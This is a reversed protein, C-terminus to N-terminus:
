PRSEKDAGCKTLWILSEREAASRHSTLDYLLQVTRPFPHQSSNKKIGPCVFFVHLNDLKNIKVSTM